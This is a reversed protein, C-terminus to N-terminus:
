HVTAVTLTQGDTTFVIHGDLDTRYITLDRQALREMLERHPHGYDNNQGCSIVVYSPTIAGLFNQTTSTRSGHHGAKLVQAKLNVRASLLDQEGPAEMDGTLLFGTQGFDVRCVLSLNNLGSYAAVPGVITLVGGGGLQIEEGVVAERTPIRNQALYDVLKDFSVTTPMLDEPVPTLAVERTPVAAMVARMGGFHDNHPHTNLMLDIQTVGIKKLYPVLTAAADNATSADVLVTAESGRILISDGQGVDLFHVELQGEVPGAVVAQAPIPEGHLFADVLDDIGSFGLSQALLQLLIAALVVVGILLPSKKGRSNGARKQQATSSM